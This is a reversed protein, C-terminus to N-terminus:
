DSLHAASCPQQAGPAKPSSPPRGMPCSLIDSFVETESDISICHMSWTTIVDYQVKYVRLYSSVAGVNKKPM